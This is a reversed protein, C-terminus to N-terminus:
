VKAEKILAQGEKVVRQAQQPLADITRKQRKWKIAKKRDDPTREPEWEELEYGSAEINRTLM